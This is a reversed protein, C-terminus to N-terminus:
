RQLANRFIHIQTLVDFHHNPCRRMMSNYREWTECLTKRSGQSFVTITTKAEMFKKPNFLKNLFKEKFTDWNEIKPTSQYLYWENEIEPIGSM